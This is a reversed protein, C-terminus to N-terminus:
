ELAPFGTDGRGGVCWSSCLLTLTVTLISELVCKDYAEMAEEFQGWTDMELINQFEKEWRQGLTVKGQAAM